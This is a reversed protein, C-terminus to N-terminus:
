SPVRDRTLADAILSVSVSLLAIMVVPALVSLPQSNLGPRNEAAMVGWDAKPAQVGFGLFNAGAVILVSITFRLGIDAGLTARINPVIERAIISLRGQGRLRAAAVFEQVAIPRAAAHAIRGLSAVNYIVVATVVTSAGPGLAATMVMLLVLGPIVLMLDLTGLIGREGLEGAYAAASGLPVGILYSVLVGIGALWVTPRGGYLLRSWIDRGLLDTGLRNESTRGGYPVGLLQDEGYPALWPGFVVVALVAALLITGVIGQGGLRSTARQIASM